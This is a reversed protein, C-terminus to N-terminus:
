TLNYFNKHPVVFFLLTMGTGGKTKFGHRLHQLRQEGEPFLDSLIKPGAQRYGANVLYIM